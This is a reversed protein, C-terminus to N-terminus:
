IIEFYRQLEWNTVSDQFQRWEWERTKVFHDVFTDGLIERAIKSQSLNQTAESLNRPLRLANSNYASGTIPKDSLSLNKQIGYLGAAVTAAIALYPNLDAGGVRVELRTSKSSAPIVRFAVTRNDIGWSVKTPAWFGDVLRKYSNVTPALLPLIEPLCKLLGALYSKFLPSMKHADKENYFLNKDGNPDWLTQHIHGSCGPLASNWKAMFSPMIGFRQGIEKASTKFLTARDAAELADSYLIAAELVGPGTETHLGEIPIGFALMEDMLAAFFDRNQAIRILSYGFMGPTLTELKTFSKEALTQSTEKFNFWEFEMGCKARYGAKEARGLVRKLLRRPCIELDQGEATTFDGLLFPLKNEWPIERYTSLDIAAIADPYGTHWGTYKSNEYCVDGSDWGFVVNCFGFGSEVASLFKQKHLYKGRLVGDIDTVAVKIKEGPANTIRQLVQSNKNQRAIAKAM